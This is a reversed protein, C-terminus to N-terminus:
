ERKARNDIVTSIIAFPNMPDDQLYWHPSYLYSMRHQDLWALVGLNWNNNFPLFFLKAISMTYKYWCELDGYLPCILGPAAIYQM